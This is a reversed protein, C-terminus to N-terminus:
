FIGARPKYRSRSLIMQGDELEMLKTPSVEPNNKMFSRVIQWGLWSGTNGPSENPMGSSTPGENVYKNFKISKTEYLLEQEIFFGYIRGENEKAWEIQEPDYSIKVYDKTDHLTIDLLYLIKGNYIMQDLLNHPEKNFPFQANYIAKLTNAPLFAPKFNRLQYQHFGLGPYYVFDPGLYMDLSIGVAEEEMTFAAPGFETVGTFLQPVKRDPFYYKFYRLSEEVQEIPADFDTYILDISDKLSRIAKDRFFLVASELYDENEIRGLQLLKDFYLDALVPQKTTFTRIRQILTLSDDTFFDIETRIPEIELSVASIDPKPFDPESNCGTLLLLFCISIVSTVTKFIM